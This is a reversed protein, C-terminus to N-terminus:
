ELVFSVTRLGRKGMKLELEALRGIEGTSMVHTGFCFTLAYGPIEVMRLRELARPIKELFGRKREDEEGELEERSTYYITIPIDADVVEDFEAGVRRVAEEYLGSPRFELRTLDSYVKPGAGAREFLGTLLHEGSHRRMNFYRPEWDIVGNVQTGDPVDESLYHFIERGRVMVKRVRVERDDVVLFGTDSPQGGSEPYFATRDLVAFRPGAKVVEANFERMYSDEAYLPTSTFYNVSEYSAGGHRMGREGM